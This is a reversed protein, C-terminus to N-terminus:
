LERDSWRARTLARGGDQWTELNMREGQILTNGRLERGTARMCVGRCVGGCSEWCLLVRDHAETIMRGYPMLICAPRIFHFHEKRTHADKCAYAHTYTHTRPSKNKKKAFSHRLLRILPSIFPLDKNQSQRAITKGGCRRTGSAIYYRSLKGYLDTWSWVSSMETSNFFFLPSPLNKCLAVGSCCAVLPCLSSIKSDFVQMRRLTFANEQNHPKACIDIM